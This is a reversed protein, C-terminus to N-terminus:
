SGEKLMAKVREAMQSGMREFTALQLRLTLSKNPSRLHRIKRAMCDRCDWRYVRTEATCCTM